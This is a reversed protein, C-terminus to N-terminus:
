GYVLSQAAADLRPGDHVIRGKRLAVVRPFADAVALDHTAVVLTTQADRLEAVARAASATDLGSTPEDALILGPNSLLARVLALRQRQGGSLQSVRADLCDDVGHALVLEQLRSQYRSPCGSVAVQLWDRTTWRGATGMVANMRGSLGAM